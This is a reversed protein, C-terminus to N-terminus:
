WDGGADHGDHDILVLTGHYMDDLRQEEELQRILRKAGWYTYRKWSEEVRDNCVLRVEYRKEM